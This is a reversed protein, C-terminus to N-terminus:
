PRSTIRGSPRLYKGCQCRAVGGLYRFVHVHAKKKKKRRTM